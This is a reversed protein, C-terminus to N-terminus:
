QTRTRSWSRPSFGLPNGAHPPAPHFMGMTHPVPFGPVFGQMPGGQTNMMGMNLHMMPPANITMQSMQANVNSAVAPASSTM